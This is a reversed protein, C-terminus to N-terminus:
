YLSIKMEAATDVPEMEKKQYSDPLRQLIARRIASGYKKRIGYGVGLMIAAITMRPHKECTLKWVCSSGKKIADYAIHCFKILKECLKKPMADHIYLLFKVSKRNLKEDADALRTDKESNRKTITLIKDELDAVQKDHLM